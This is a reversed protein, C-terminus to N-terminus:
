VDHRRRQHIPNASLLLHQKTSSKSLYEYLPRTRNVTDLVSTGDCTVPLKAKNMPSIVDCDDITVIRDRDIDYPM